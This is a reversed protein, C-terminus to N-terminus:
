GQCSDSQVRQTYQSSDLATQLGPESLDLSNALAMLLPLGLSKQNEFIANEHM